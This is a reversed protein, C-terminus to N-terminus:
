LQMPKVAAETVPGSWAHLQWPKSQGENIQILGGLANAQRRSWRIRSSAAFGRGARRAAAFSPMRRTAASRMGGLSLCAAIRNGSPCLTRCTAANSPM